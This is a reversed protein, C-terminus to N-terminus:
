RSRDDRRRDGPRGDPRSNENRAPALERPDLQGDKNTDLEEFIEAAKALEEKSLRGDRNADLKGFGVAPPGPFGFANPNSERVKKFEDLTLEGTRDKGAMRLLNAVQFRTREDGEDVTVKGDGNADMRKFQTEVDENRPAMAMATRSTRIYEEKSLPEDPGKGAREWIRAFFPRSAEPVESLLLKDDRNRDLQAFTEVPDRGNFAFAGRSVQDVVKLYEEKTLEGDRKKGAAEFLPAMRDRAREPLEALTLKGDGNADMQEFTNQGGPRGAKILADEFEKFTLEGDKDKGAEQFVRTVFPRSFGNDPVESMTLKGDGNADFRKFLDQPTGNRGDRGDRRDRPATTATRTEDPKIGEVFEDATLKGDKNRDGARVAHEFYRKKDEAVEDATLTGDKNKDLEAFVDKPSKEVPKDPEPKDPEPKDQALIPAVLALSLAWTCFRPNLM